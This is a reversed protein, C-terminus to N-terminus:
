IGLELSLPKLNGMGNRRQGPINTGCQVGLRSCDEGEERKKPTECVCGRYSQEFTVEELFGLSSSYTLGLKVPPQVM